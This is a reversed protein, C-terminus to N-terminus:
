QSMEQASLIQSTTVVGTLGRLNLRIYRGYENKLVVQTTSTTGDPYFLVPDSWSSDLSVRQDGLETAVSSQRSDVSTESGMFVVGKPLTEERPPQPVFASDVKESALGLDSADQDMTAYCEVRYGGEDVIFRFM